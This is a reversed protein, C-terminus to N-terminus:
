LSPTPIFFSQSQLDPVPSQEFVTDPYRVDVLFLAEGPVSEGAAARSRAAIVDDMLAAADGEARSVGLMTGVLARVMNRLFRDATVEFRWVTPSLQVWRAQTVACRFSRVDTHVKSFSEFDSHCLLRAAAANMRDFDPVFYPCYAYRWTFPSAETCLYYHYSRAVASFRAHADPRVPVMGAVRISRPLLSNLRYCLRGADLPAPADFHAVMCLANVGADTRGAGTLPTESRLLLSLARELTQEVSVANKQRQWGHFERGDYSLFLFYRQPM